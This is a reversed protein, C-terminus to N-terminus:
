HSLLDSISRWRCGDHGVTVAFLGELFQWAAEDHVLHHSLLGVCGGTEFTVRLRAVIDAVLAATERGGRTGHWDMLDVHTNVQVPVATQQEPGFVSLARFGLAPLEPLLAADIRNWPPVLLPVFRAAHLVALHRYGAGLEALIVEAPRHRGLEQKKESPPAHNHHSWGHVAVDAHPATDLRLALPSETDVPIVALLVPVGHRGTLELLRDLAPTPEVADDDRLWFSASRGAVKWRDLETLLPTWVAADTM